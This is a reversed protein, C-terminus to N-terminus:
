SAADRSHMTARATGVLSICRTAYSSAQLLPYVTHMYMIYAQVLLYVASCLAPLGVNDPLLVPHRVSHQAPGRM